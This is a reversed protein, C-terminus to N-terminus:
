PDSCRYVVTPGGQGLPGRGGFWRDEFQGVLACRTELYVRYRGLLPDPDFGCAIAGNDIAYDIDLADLASALEEQSMGVDMFQSYHAHYYSLYFDMIFHNRQNFRYWLVPDGFVRSGPPILAAVRSQYSELDRPQFRYALWLQAITNAFLLPSTVLLAAAAPRIRQWRAAVMRGIGTAAAAIGLASFADWLVIYRLNRHSMGFTFLALSSGWMWLVVRDEARHRYALFLAASLAYVTFPLVARNLALVGGSVAFHWQDILRDQLSRGWLEGIRAIVGSLQEWALRPDPLLQLALMFTVSLLGGLGASLINLRGQPSRLNDWLILAAQALEFWIGNTHFGLPAGMLLGLFFYRTQTPADRVLLYYYLAGAVAAVLWAEQRSLHSAYFGNLSTALIAAALLGTLSDHLRRGILGTFLIALGWGLVSFLRAVVLTNGALLLLGQGIHYLRGTGANTRDLGAIGELGSVGFHGAHIFNYSMSSLFPEDCFPSPYDGVSMLSSVALVVLLSSLILAWHNELLALLREATQLVITATKAM